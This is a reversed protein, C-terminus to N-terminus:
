ENDQAAHRGVYGDAERALDCNLRLWEVHTIPVDTFEGGDVGLLIATGHILNGGVYTSPEKGKLMGEEDMILVVPIEGEGRDITLTEIYGGVANQLSTLDNQVWVDTWPKHPQKIFGHLMKSM